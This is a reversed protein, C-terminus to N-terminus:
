GALLQVTVESRDTYGIVHSAMSSLYAAGQLGTGNQEMFRLLLNKKTATKRSVGGPLSFTEIKPHFFGLLPGLNEAYKLWLRIIQWSEWGRKARGCIEIEVDTLIRNYIQFSTRKQAELCCVLRPILFLSWPVAGFMESMATSWGCLPTESPHFHKKRVQLIKCFEYALCLFVDRQKKPSAAVHCSTATGSIPRKEARWHCSRRKWCVFRRTHLTFIDVQRSRRDGSGWTNNSSIHMVRITSGLFFVIVDFM